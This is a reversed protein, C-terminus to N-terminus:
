YAAKYYTNWNATKKYLIEKKPSTGIIVGNSSASGENDKAVGLKASLLTGVGAAGVSLTTKLFTRREEFM